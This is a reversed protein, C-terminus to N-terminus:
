VSEPNLNPLGSFGKTVEVDNPLDVQYLNAELDPNIRIEEFEIVRGNGDAGRYEVRRPLYTSEDLFFRVEEIRKRARRKRPELLLLRVNEEDVEGLQIRYFKALEASGQGLGFFRFLHDSWRQVNRKEAQKRAPFYGTYQDRAIVFRMEEPSSYEWRISDPKTMYFRGEAVIPDKLMTNSTTETFQASLTQISGQVEDFRALVQDLEEASVASASPVLSLVCITAGCCIRFLGRRLGVLSVPTMPMKFMQM